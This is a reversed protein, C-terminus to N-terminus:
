VVGGTQTPEAAVPMVLTTLEGDDASRVTIPEHPSRVDLLLDAGVATSVAPYLTTMEFCREVPPGSVRARVVDAGVACSDHGVRVTIRDSAHNELAKTVQLKDVTVRTLTPSLADLMARYDPFPEAVLRCHLQRDGALTWRIGGTSMHLRVVASRRMGSLCGRLDGANVTASWASTPPEVMSVTRTSLRFRDTATLTMSETTVELHIGGLVAFEPQQVTSILVQEVAAATAPGHLVVSPSSSEGRLSATVVAARRRVIEASEVVDGVHTDVLRAAEDRDAALVSEVAALSMGMERLRRVLVGRHVQMQAYRRYGSVPDVHAPPLLESDSYFRLASATLGTRRAFEGISMMETDSM